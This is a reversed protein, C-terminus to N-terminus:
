STVVNGDGMSAVKDVEDSWAKQAKSCEEMLAYLPNMEAMLQGGRTAEWWAPGSMVRVSLEAITSAEVRMEESPTTGAPLLKSYIRELEFRDSNGLIAKIEFSGTWRTKTVDGVCDITVTKYISPLKTM